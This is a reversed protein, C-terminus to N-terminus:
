ATIIAKGLPPLVNAGYAGGINGAPGYNCVTYWTEFGSYMTGKPCFQTACGVQDSGKWLLQSLHGWSEFQDMPPTALGYFSSKYNNFEGDYWANTIAMKLAGADGIKDAGSSLGFNALNQGYHKDGQAMDHKFVCTAATNAAWSALTSNWAVDPASHNSRHLNHHEVAVAPYGSGTPPSASSASTPAQQTPEETTPKPAEATQTVVVYSPQPVSTTPAPPPPAPASPTETVVVVPISTETPRQKQGLFVTPKPTETETGTVTVTYYEMVWSTEMKRKELPSGMTLAAAGVTVLISSRM